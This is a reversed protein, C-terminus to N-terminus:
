AARERLVLIHTMRGECREQGGNVERVHQTVELSIKKEEPDGNRRFIKFFAVESIIKGHPDYHEWAFNLVEVRQPDLSPRPLSNLNAAPAMTKISAWAESVFLIMHAQHEVAKARMQAVFQDKQSPNSFGRPVPVMDWALGGNQTCILFGVPMFTEFELCTRCAALAFADLPEPMHEKLWAEVVSLTDLPMIM